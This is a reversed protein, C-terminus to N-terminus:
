RIQKRPLVESHCSFMARGTVADRRVHSDRGNDHVQHGRVLYPARRPCRGVTRCGSDGGPGCPCVRRGSFIVYVFGGAAEQEATNAAKQTDRNSWWQRGAFM